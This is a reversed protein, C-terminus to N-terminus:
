ATSSTVLETADRGARVPTGSELAFEWAAGSHPAHNAEHLEYSPSALRPIHVIENRIAYLILQATSNIRIKRKLNSRHTEVTKASLRLIKAIDKACNGEALLQIVERERSTLAQPGGQRTGGNLLMHTMRSTCFVKGQLVAEVGSLLDCAPDAKLVFARVGSQLAARMVQESDVETFILVSKPPSQSLIQRAAELGNLFPLGVDLIVLDPM